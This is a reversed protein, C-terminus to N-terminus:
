VARTRTCGDSFLVPRTVVTNGAVGATKTRVGTTDDPMMTGLDPELNVLVSVQGSARTHILDKAKKLMAPLGLVFHCIPKCEGEQEGSTCAPSLLESDEMGCELLGDATIAEKKRWCLVRESQFIRPNM